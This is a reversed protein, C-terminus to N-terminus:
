RRLRTTVTFGGNVFRSTLERGSVNWDVFRVYTDGPMDFTVIDGEQTWTGAMSVLQEQPEPAVGAPIFFEGSTTGDPALALDLHGGGAVLDHTTTSSVITWEIAAYSGAIDGDAAAPNSCAGLSGAVVALTIVPWRPRGPSRM